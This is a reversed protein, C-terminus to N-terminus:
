RYLRWFRRGHADAPWDGVIEFEEGFAKRLEDLSIGRASMAAIFQRLVAPLGVAGSGVPRPPQRVLSHAVGLLLFTDAGATGLLPRKLKEEAGVRPMAVFDTEHM